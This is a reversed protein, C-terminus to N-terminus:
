RSHLARDATGLLFGELDATENNNRFVNTTKGASKSGASLQATAALGIAAASSKKLFERRKM